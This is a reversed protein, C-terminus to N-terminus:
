FDSVSPHELNEQGLINYMTDIQGLYPSSRGHRFASIEASMNTTDCIDFKAELKTLNARFQIFRHSKLILKRKM